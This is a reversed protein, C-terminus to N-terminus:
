VLPRWWWRTVKYWEITRQLGETFDVRPKWGLSEIKQCDLSYRFDHGPRDSVYEVMTDPLSLHRLIETAIEINMRENGGAINYIEGKEGM